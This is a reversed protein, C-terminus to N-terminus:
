CFDKTIFGLLWFIAINISAHLDAQSKSWCNVCKFIDQNKRNSKNICWCEHCFVSSYESFVKSIHGLDWNILQNKYILSDLIKGHFINASIKNLHKNDWWRFNLDEMFIYDLFWVNFLIKNLINWIITRKLNDLKKSEIKIQISKEKMLEYDKNNKAIDKLSKLEDIKEKHHNIKKIAKQSHELYQKKININNKIIKLKSINDNNDKYNNENNILFYKELLEKRDNHSLLDLSKNSLEKIENSLESLELSNNSDSLINKPFEIISWALINASWLDYSFIRIFNKDNLKTEINYTNYSKIFPTLDKKFILSLTSKEPSLWYKKWKFSKFIYSNYEIPIKIESKTDFPNVIKIFYQNWISKDICFLSKQEKRVDFIDKLNEKWYKRRSIWDNFLSLELNNIYNIKIKKQIYSIINYKNVLYIIEDISLDNIDSNNNLKNYEKLDNFINIEVDSDDNRFFYKKFIFNPNYKLIFDKDIEIKDLLTYNNLFYDYLNNEKNNIDIWFQDLNKAIKDLTQPNLPYNEKDLKDLNKPKKPKYLLIKNNDYLDSIKTNINTLIFKSYNLLKYNYNNYISNIENLVYNYYRKHSFINFSKDIYNIYAKTINNKDEKEFTFLHESNWIDKRENNFISHYIITSFWNIMSFLEKELKLLIDIKSQHIDKRINLNHSLTLQKM